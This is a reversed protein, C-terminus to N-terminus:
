RKSKATELAKTTTYYKAIMNPVEWDPLKGDKLYDLFHEMVQGFHAEHGVRYEAPIEVKWEGNGIKTLSIGPYTVSLKEMSEALDKEYDTLNTNKVAEIFLEPKYNQEKGQCIVLNAKSGKMVSFHTDGGGEPFTYNWIVSVKATVGKINYIMDGNCFIKLTDNEVDKKLYEPYDEAGTVQQFEPKSISTTWRNADLMEIDKKYDIAQEPFLEWQVLDVLHTTVDVIGEGQQATDFYWLPRVLPKGDVMKFFHHVSEKVVAPDGKSGKLQEGYVAPIMSLERQLMTTIENRETMIDYLLVNNKKATEFCEELLAFGDRDIAMPKDSLVNLGAGLAEKIYQTKKGNNGALVVVNGAKEALMRELYDDGRYVIENWDTPNDKRTNFGEIRKLHEDVDFGDPAYVRVETSVQPYSTKQVLAAHFHGPDLTILRVEDNKEQVIGTKGQKNTCSLTLALASLSVFFISKM